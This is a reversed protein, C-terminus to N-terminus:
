DEVREVHNVPLGTVHRAARVAHSAHPARVRITRLLGAAAAGEVDEAAVEAPVVTARYSHLTQVHPIPLM